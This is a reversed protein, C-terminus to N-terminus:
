KIKGKIFNIIEDITEIYKEALLLTTEQNDGIDKQRSLPYYYKPNKLYEQKTLYPYVTNLWDDGIIVLDELKKIIEDDIGHYDYVIMQIDVTPFKPFVDTNDTSIRAIGKEYINEAERKM